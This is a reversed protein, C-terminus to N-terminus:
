SLGAIALVESAPPIPRPHPPQVPNPPPVFTAATLTPPLPPMLEAMQSQREDFNQMEEVQREIFDPAQRLDASNWSRIFNYVFM